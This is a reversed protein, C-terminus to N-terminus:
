GGGEKEKEKEKEIVQRWTTMQSFTSSLVSMIKNTKMGRTQREGVAWGDKNNTDAKVSAELTLQM